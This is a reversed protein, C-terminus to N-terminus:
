GLPCNVTVLVGKTFDQTQMGWQAQGGLENVRRKINTIGTGAVWDQMPLNTGDNFVKIHLWQKQFEIDVMILDPQAHKLANTVTERVIRGLNVWQHNDLTVDPVEDPQTWIIEVDAIELREQMEARWDALANELLIPDRDQLSYIAERLTTLASKALEQNKPTQANHVLSLLKAGVDDHLDRMIREREVSVAQDQKKRLEASQYVLTYLSKVLQLDQNSFLSKGFERGLIRLTQQQDVSPCLIELGEKELSVEMLPKDIVEITLPKLIRRLLELWQEHLEAYNRSGFFRHIFEPLFNEMRQRGDGLYRRVMWQRIPFYVWGIVLIAVSLAGIPSMNMFAILALDAFIVFAGSFFWVWIAFWWRDLDFLRYRAVGMALGLYLCLLLGAASWLDLWPEGGFVIPITYLLFTLQTTVVVSILMWGVIAREIPKDKSRKWQIVAFVTGFLCPLAFHIVYTNLPWEIIQFVRGLWDLLTFGLIAYGYRRDGLPEPYFWLLACIAYAFLQAGLQNIGTAARFFDAPLMLERESYTGVTLMCLAYGVGSVALLGTAMEGRRYIWVAVGIFLAIFGFLYLVWTQWPVQKISRQPLPKVEIESGDAKVLTLQPQLLIDHLRQQQDLFLNYGNFTSLSDTDPTLTVADVRLTDHEGRIAVIRDGEKLESTEPVFVREVVIARGDNSPKFAVGLSPVSLNQYLLHFVFAFVLAGVAILIIQPSLQGPKLHHLGSTNMVANNM